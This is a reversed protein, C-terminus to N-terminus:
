SHPPTKKAMAARVIYAVAGAGMVAAIGIYINPFAPTLAPDGFVWFPPDVDVASEYTGNRNADFFVDYHGPTLRSTWIETVPLSGDSGIHVRVPTSGYRPTPISMGETWTDVYDVIYVDVDSEPFFGSGGCFVNERQYYSSKVAGVPDTPNGSPKVAVAYGVRYTGGTPVDVGTYWM